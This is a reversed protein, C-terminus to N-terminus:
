AIAKVPYVCMLLKEEHIHQDLIGTEIENEKNKKRVKEGKKKLEKGQEKKEEIWGNIWECM